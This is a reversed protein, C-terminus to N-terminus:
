WQHEIIFIIEDSVFMFTVSTPLDLRVMRDLYTVKQTAKQEIVYLRSVKGHLEHPITSGFYRLISYIKMIVRNAHFAMNLLPNCKNIACCNGTHSTPTITLPIFQIQPM